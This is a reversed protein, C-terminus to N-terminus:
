RDNLLATKMAKIHSPQTRCCGGILRAGCRRWDLCAHSFDLPDSAGIWTKTRVDFAEGSNPYVVVAKAPASARVKKILAPIYRPATCNIGVAVVNPCDAWLAACDVIPTGDSITMEDRCSFSVWGTIEPTQRFLRSLVKAEEFSPITECAFFDASTEALVQWRPEHFAHLDGASIGYKGRFESGDALYAGYPGISAAVLPCVEDQNKRQLVFVDRAECALEVAHAILAKAESVRLGHSVFGPISAQYSAATICDAGAELYSRHVRLIDDPKARLVHASWLPHNLDHGLRELETALGGDLMLFGHTSLFIDIPSPM